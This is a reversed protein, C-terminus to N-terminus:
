NKKAPKKKAAAKAKSKAAPMEENEAKFLEERSVKNEDVQSLELIYDIVKDEYLPARIENLAQPNKKFFEYVEKERGPFQRIREMMGRNLEDQTVQIKNKEGIEALLLGLRVRRVAIARYNEKAEDETTKQSEFTQGTQKMENEVQQWIMTYEQDILSSPLEFDYEEDLADLLRRKLKQRAMHADERAIQERVAEKLKVLSEVGLHQAFHDDIVDHKEVKAVEKVKVKFAAKKGALQAASYPEPFTVSITREDGAKTGVLQEEFGPIFQNSGLVLHAGEAKGGEFPVGDVSGEYDILVRDENQAVRGEEAHYHRHGDAIRSIAKDVDADTVEATDKTLKIKKFDGIDIKPLVEVKMTFSLDATGDMIAEIVKEDKPFDIQPEGALKINKEAAIERAASGVTDNLVEAMAQRGYLKKIHSTPVKGPRFGPIKVREKMSNLREETRSALTEASVVVKFERKLGESATEEFKLAQAAKAM